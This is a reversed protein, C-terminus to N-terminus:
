PFQIAKNLGGSINLFYKLGFHELKERWRILAQPAM